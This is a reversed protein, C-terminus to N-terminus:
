DDYVEKRHPMPIPMYHTVKVGQRDGLWFDNEDKNGPGQTRYSFWPMYEQHNADAVLYQKDYDPLQVNVSFWLYSSMEEHEKELRAMFRKYAYYYGEQKGKDTGIDYAALVTVVALIIVTVFIYISVSDM